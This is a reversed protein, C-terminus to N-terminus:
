KEKFKKIVKSLYTVEVGLFSAIHKQSVRELLDPYFQKLFLYKQESNLTRLLITQNQFECLNEMLEVISFMAFRNSLGILQLYLKKRIGYVVCDELAEISEHSPIDYQFSNVPTVFQGEHVFWTSVEVGEKDSFLRVLGKELYFMKDCIEGEHVLIDGKKLKVSFILSM